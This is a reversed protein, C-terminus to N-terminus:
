HCDRIFKYDVICMSPSFFFCCHPLSYDFLWQLFLCDDNDDDDDVDDRIFHFQIFLSDFPISYFAIFVSYYAPTETM